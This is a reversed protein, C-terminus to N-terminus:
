IVHQKSGKRLTSTNPYKKPMNTKINGQDSDKSKQVTMQYHFYGQSRKQMITVTTKLVSEFGLDISDQQTL